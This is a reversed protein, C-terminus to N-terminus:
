KGISWMLFRFRNRIYSSVVNDGIAEAFDIVEPSVRISGVAFNRLILGSFSRVRSLAVYAQGSEFIRRGIDVEAFDITQGQSKHITIAWAPVLPIQSIFVGQPVSSNWPILVFSHATFHHEVGSLLRVRVGGGPPFEIVVGRTGNAIGGAVNVNATCMVQSGIRLHLEPHYRGSSDMEERKSAIMEPTWERRFAISDEERNFTEYMTAIFVRESAPDLKEMEDHNVAEVLARTSYLKTPVIGTERTIRESDEHSSRLKDTLIERTESTLIGCRIQNLIWTFLEDGEQRYNKQFVICQNRKRILQRWSDCSFVFRGVDGGDGGGSRAVPPLQFFDGVFIIQLGGFPVDIRGRIHRMLLDFKTLLEPSMMSIEDIILIDISQIKEFTSSPNRLLFHQRTLFHYRAEGSESNNVGIMSWSHFTMASFESLLIAATGTMATIQLNWRHGRRRCEEYVRQIWYTKGTGAPGTILLSERRDFVKRFALAQEPTM